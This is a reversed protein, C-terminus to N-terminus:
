QRRSCSEYSCIPDSGNGIETLGVDSSYRKELNLDLLGWAGRFREQDSVKDEAGDSNSGNDGDSDRGGTDGNGNGYTKCSVWFMDAFNETDFLGDGLQCLRCPSCFAWSALEIKPMSFRDFKVELEVERAGDEFVVTTTLTMKTQTPLAGTEGGETRENYLFARLSSRLWRSISGSLWSFRM